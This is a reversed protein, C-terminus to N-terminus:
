WKKKPKRAVSIALAGAGILSLPMIAGQGTGGDNGGSRLFLVLMLLGVAIIVAGFFIQVFRM